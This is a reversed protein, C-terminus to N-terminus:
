NSPSAEAVRYFVHGGETVTPEYVEAWDPSLGEAHFYLAGKTRDELEQNLARRAVDMTLEYRDAEEVDLPNGDCWWSFQCPGEPRGETVVGCITDPFGDGALRNMVVNAVAEM